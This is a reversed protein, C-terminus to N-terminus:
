MYTICVNLNLIKYRNKCYRALSVLFTWFLLIVYNFGGEHQISTDVGGMFVPGTAQGRGGSGMLTIAKFGGGWVCEGGRGLCVCVCVCMEKSSWTEYIHYSHCPGKCLKKKGKTETLFIICCCHM